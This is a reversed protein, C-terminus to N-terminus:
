RSVLQLVQEIQAPTPLIRVAEDIEAEAWERHQPETDPDAAIRVQRRLFNLRSAVLMTFDGPRTLRAPGGAEIYAEHFMRMADVDAPGDCFWDFLYRTLERVPEAPGVQDLDVVVLEGDPGALVNEPHLDRHCLRTTALDPPSVMACLEPLTRLRADWGTRRIEPWGTLPPPTDYWPDPEDGDPEARAAPAERHLGALLRGLAAPDVPDIPRLDFWDLRRLWSGEPMRHVYNGDTGPYSAPVAVGARAAARTFALEAEITAPSPPTGFLEKVAYTDAGAQVRWIRGLAGRPGATVVADAPLGLVEPLEM